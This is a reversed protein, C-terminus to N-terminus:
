SWEPPRVLFQGTGACLEIREPLQNNEIHKRKLRSMSHCNNVLDISSRHYPIVAKIHKHPAFEKLARVGAIMDSDGSFLLAKDFTDRSAELLMTVAINIDTEKEEFTKYSLRCDARCKKVVPKFKGLIIKVGQMELARIYMKHRNMKEQNWPTLASFYFVNVLQDRSQIVFANALNWYNIWKFRDCGNECLSHYMNFGDIFAAVRDM